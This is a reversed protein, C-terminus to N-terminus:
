PLPESSFMATSSDDLYCVTECAAMFFEALGGFRAYHRSGLRHIIRSPEGNWADMTGIVGDATM